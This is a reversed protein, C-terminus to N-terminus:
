GVACADVRLRTLSRAHPPFVRRPDFEHAIVKIVPKKGNYAKCGRRLADAVARQVAVLDVTVPCRAIAAESLVFLFATTHVGCYNSDGWNHGYLCTM